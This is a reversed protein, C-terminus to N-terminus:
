EENEFQTTTILQFSDEPSHILVKGSYKDLAYSQAPVKKIRGPNEKRSVLDVNEKAGVIINEHTVLFPALQGLSPKYYIRERPVENKEMGCTFAKSTRYPSSYSKM